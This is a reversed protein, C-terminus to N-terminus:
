PPPMCAHFGIQPFQLVCSLGLCCPAGGPTCQDGDAICAPVCMNGSKNFGSDCVIDCTGQNCVAHGNGNTPGSCGNGCMGCNSTDSALDVCQGRCCNPATSPCCTPGIGAVSCLDPHGAPAAPGCQYCIGTGHAADSSCHGAADGTFISHCFHACDRNGQAAAPRAGLSALVLGALGAGLRRVAERRSVSDALSKALADFRNEM